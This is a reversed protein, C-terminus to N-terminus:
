AIPGKAAEAPAEKKVSKADIIADLVTVLDEDFVGFKMKKAWSKLNDYDADELRLEDAGNSEVELFSIWVRQRKHLEDIDAGENPAPQKIIMKLVELSNVGKFTDTGEVNKYLKISKL